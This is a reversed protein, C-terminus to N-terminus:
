CYILFLLPGLRSGQPVGSRIDIMESKHGNITVVQRRDSLYSKLIDFFSGGVGIQGLKALLGNHWVKDFASSVDLFLGHTM